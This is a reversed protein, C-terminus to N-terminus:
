VLSLANIKNHLATVDRTLWISADHGATSPTSQRVTTLRALRRAYLTEMSQLKYQQRKNM